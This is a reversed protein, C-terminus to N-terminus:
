CAAASRSWSVILCSARRTSSKLKSSSIPAPCTLHHSSRAPVPGAQGRNHGTHETLNAPRAAGAGTDSAVDAAQAAAGLAFLGDIAGEIARVQALGATVFLRHGEIRLVERVRIDRDVFGEELPVLDQQGGEHVRHGLRAQSGGAGYVGVHTLGEFGQHAGVAGALGAQVILGPGGVQDGGGDEIEDVLADLVEPLREGLTGPHLGQTVGVDEAHENKELVDLVLDVVAALTAAGEEVHQTLLRRGQRRSRVGGARRQDQWLRVMLDWYGM